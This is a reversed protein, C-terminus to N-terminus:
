LVFLAKQGRCVLQSHYIVCEQVSLEGVKTPELGRGDTVHQSVHGDHRKVLLEQASILLLVVQGLKAPPNFRHALVVVYDLLCSFHSHQWMGFHSM